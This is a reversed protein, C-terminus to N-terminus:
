LITLMTEPANFLAAALFSSRSAQNGPEPLQGKKEEEKTVDAEMLIFNEVHTQEATSSSVFFLALKRELIQIVGHLFAM